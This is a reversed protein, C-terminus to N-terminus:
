LFQLFLEEGRYLMAFAMTRMQISRSRGTNHPNSWKIRVFKLIRGRFNTSAAINKAAFDRARMRTFPYIKDWTSTMIRGSLRWCIHAPQLIFNLVFPRTDYKMSEMSSALDYKLTRKRIYLWSFLSKKTRKM